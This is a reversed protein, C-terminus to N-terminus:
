SIPRRMFCFNPLRTSHFRCLSWARLICRRRLREARRLSLMDRALVVELSEAFQKAPQSPLGVAKRVPRMPGQVQSLFMLSSQLTILVVLM